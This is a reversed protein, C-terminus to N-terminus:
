CTVPETSRGTGTQSTHENLFRRLIRHMVGYGMRNVTLNDALEFTGSPLSTTTM